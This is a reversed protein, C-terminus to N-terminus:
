NIIEERIESLTVTRQPKDSEDETIKKDENLEMEFDIVLLSTALVAATLSVYFVWWYSLKYYAHIGLVIVTLWAYSLWIFAQSYITETTSILEDINMSFLKSSLSPTIHTEHFIHAKIVVWILGGLIAALMFLSSYSNISIFDELNNFVLRLGDVEYGASFYKSLFVISTVKTAVILVAPFIAYDILKVLTKAFM